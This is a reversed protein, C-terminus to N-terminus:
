LQEPPGGIGLSQARVRLSKLLKGYGSDEFYNVWQRNKLREPVDCDELKLPILFIEGDPVEDAIDLAYRLEKQVYGTKNISGRSLCVIVVDAKRVAKRIELNWDQGPLLKEDDLWPEIKDGLLQRYLNRVQQKDGSSHCLFVRLLCSVNSDTIQLIDDIRKRETPITFFTAQETDWNERDRNDQRILRKESLVQLASKVEAMPYLLVESIKRLSVRSPSTRILRLVYLQTESLDHQYNAGAFVEIKRDNNISYASDKTGDKVV